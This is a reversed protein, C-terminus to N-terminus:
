IPCSGVYPFHLSKSSCVLFHGSQSPNKQLLQCRRYAVGESTPQRLNLPNNRTLVPRQGSRVAPVGPHRLHTLLRGFLYFRCIWLGGFEHRLSVTNQDDADSPFILAVFLVKTSWQTKSMVTLFPLSIFTRSYISVCTSARAESVAALKLGQGM